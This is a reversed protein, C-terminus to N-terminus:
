RAGVSVRVHAGEAQDVDRADTVMAIMGVFVVGRPMRAEGRPNTAQKVPM